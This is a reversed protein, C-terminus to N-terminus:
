HGMGPMLNYRLNHMIWLTGLIVIFVILLTFLFLVLNWRPKSELGLHFFFILQLIVQLCGIGVVTIVLSEYRLHAYSIIRYIAVTCIISLIFGLIVPKFSANWGHHMDIM